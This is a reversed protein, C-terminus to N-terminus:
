RRDRHARANQTRFEHNTDGRLSLCPAPSKKGKHTRKQTIAAGSGSM